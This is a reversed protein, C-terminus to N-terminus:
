RCLWRFELYWKKKVLKNSDFLQLKFNEQVNPSAMIIIKKSMKNHKQNDKRYEECIGIASCTKGSGMGHYLLLGNYPTHKSIYMKVFEQHPALSFGDSHDCSTTKKTIPKIEGNYQTDHFEKKLYVKKQLDMNQLHPYKLKIKLPNSNFFLRNKEEKIKIKNLESNGDM